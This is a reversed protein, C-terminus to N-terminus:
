SSVVSLRYGQCRIIPVSWRRRRGQAPRYRDCGNPLENISAGLTESSNDTLMTGQTLFQLAKSEKLAMNLYKMDKLEEWTPRRGDLGGIEARLKEWVDRRRALTWLLSSMVSASTDRGGLIMALLQDRIYEEDAGSKIMENMFVYPREKEKGELLAKRVFMDIFAKCTAVSDDLKKEKFLFAIWGLRARNSASLLAYDFSRTFDLAEFSPDLLTNTSCGFRAAM